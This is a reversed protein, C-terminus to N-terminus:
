LEYLRSIDDIHSEMTIDWPHSMISNSYKELLGEKRSINRLIAKLEDPTSFISEPSHLAVIDKAGVHNSVIAPRGHAISELTVLSFTEYCRSPVITGDLSYLIGSLESYKYPPCYEINPHESDPGVNGGGYVKLHINDIGEAYLELMAKKLMPFGKYDNLSGIFGLVITSSAKIRKRKDKIERTVINIVDGKADPLFSTFVEKTQNSNFHIKDFLQFYETYYDLLEQYETINHNNPSIQSKDTQNKESAVNRIKRRKLHRLINKSKLFQYLRSNALRLFMESPEHLNCAACKAAIRTCCLDGNYDLLNYHPCIGHFDHATYFLRVGLAKIFRAIDSHLGQLTHVHFAEIKNALIFEKINDYDIDLHKHQARPNSTGYILTPTLPNELSFVKVGDIDHRYKIRAKGPKFLTDGCTLVLVNHKKAQGHILDNAYQISGGMRTPPLGITYHLINM